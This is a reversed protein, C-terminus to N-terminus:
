ALAKEQLRDTHKRYAARLDESTVNAEAIQRGIRSLEVMSTAEQMKAMWDAERHDMAQQVAPRTADDTVIEPATAPKIVEGTNYDVEIANGDADQEYGVGRQRQEPGAQDMEERSYLGSLEQPFAKRLALSEACKGLMLYPMKGWMPSREQAYEAWRATASFSCRQGQVMKYVTVTAKSPKDNVEAYVPDDSGAYAGTRDAILRMGDISTQPSWKGGRQIFYIQKAFPDLGTRNCIAIFMEFELEPAGNAFTRRILAKKEEDVVLAYEGPVKVLQTSM